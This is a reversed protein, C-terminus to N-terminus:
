VAAVRGRGRIEVGAEILTRRIVPISAAYQESLDQLSWLQEYRSVITATQKATFTRRTNAM